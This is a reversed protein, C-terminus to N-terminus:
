KVLEEFVKNNVKVNYTDRLSRIWEKELHDQYDAIIYGRAENLEKPTPPIIETVMKFSGEMKDADYSLESVAGAAFDIDAQKILQSREFTGSTVSVVESKKNYKKLTKEIGKKQVREYIKGAKKADVGSISISKVVGREEWM